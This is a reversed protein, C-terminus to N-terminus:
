SNILWARVALAVVGQRSCKPNMVLLVVWYGLYFQIM